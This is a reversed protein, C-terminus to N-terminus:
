IVLKVYVSVSRITENLVAIPANLTSLITNGYVDLLLQLCSHIDLECRQASRLAATGFSMQNILQSRYSVSADTMEFTATDSSSAGSDSSPSNISPVTTANLLGM